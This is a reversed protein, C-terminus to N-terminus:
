NKQITSAKNRGADKSKYMGKDAADLLEEMTMDPMLMAVGVSVTIRITENDRGFEHEAISKRLDECAVLTQDLPTNTFIVGFEEGGFRGLIDTVRLRQQLMAVFQKLVIDGMLHGYTDNIKKFFDLDFLAFSMHTGYRKARSVEEELKEILHRRNFAETLDDTCSLVELRTNAEKLEGNLKLLQKLLRENEAALNAKRIVEACVEPLKSFTDADKVIYDMAGHKMASVAIVENGVGTVMISPIKLGMGQIRELLEVGDMDPLRYDVVIIDPCDKTIISLAEEGTHAVNVRFGARELYRQELAATNERDEIVLVYASTNEM